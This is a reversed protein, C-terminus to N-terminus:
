WTQRPPVVSENGDYVNIEYSAGDPIEAIQLDSFMGNACEGLEEIVKILDADNRKDDDDFSYIEITKGKLESLMRCAEKSLGFGGFCNNYAVKM